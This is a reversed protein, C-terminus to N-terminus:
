REPVVDLDTFGKLLLPLLTWAQWPREKVLGPCVQGEM